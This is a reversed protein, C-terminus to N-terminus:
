ETDLPVDKVQNKKHVASSDFIEGNKAYQSIYSITKFGGFKGPYTITQEVFNNIILRAVKADRSLEKLGGEIREKLFSLRILNRNDATRDIIDTIIMELDKKLTKVQTKVNVCKGDLDVVDVNIIMLRNKISDALVNHPQTSNLGGVEAHVLIREFKDTQDKKSVPKKHRQKKAM